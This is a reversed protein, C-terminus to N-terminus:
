PNHIKIFKEHTVRLKQLERSTRVRNELHEICRNSKFNVFSFFIVLKKRSLTFGHHKM